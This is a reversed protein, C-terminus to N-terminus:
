VYVKKGNDLYYTECEDIKGTSQPCYDVQRSTAHFYRNGSELDHQSHFGKLLYSTHEWVGTLRSNTIREGCESCDAFWLSNDKRHGDQPNLATFGNAEVKFDQETM